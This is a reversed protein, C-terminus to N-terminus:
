SGTPHDFISSVSPEAATRVLLIPGTGERVLKEAVSGLLWRRVGSRGHSTLVVLDSPGTLDLIATAPSGGLVQGTVTVGVRALPECATELLRTAEAQRAALIENYLDADYAATAAFLPPMMHGSDIVSLLLVPLALRDALSKAVPVARSALESGDLPMVLRRLATGPEDRIQSKQARVILIPVAATRSVRDAVSGFAWRGLAGHGHSALLILDVAREEAVRLITESPDGVAVVVEVRLTSIAERLTEAATALLQRTGM